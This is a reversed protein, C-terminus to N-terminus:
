WLNGVHPVISRTGFDDVAFCTSDSSHDQFRCSPESVNPLDGSGTMRKGPKFRRSVYWFATTIFCGNIQFDVARWVRPRQIAPSELLMVYVMWFFLPFSVYVLAGHEAAEADETSKMAVDIWGGGDDANM